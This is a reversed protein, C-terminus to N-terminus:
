KSIESKVPKGTVPDFYIEVKKGDKNTGYIEYCTGSTKFTKIKYGEATLKGKFDAEKQWKDKPQSTCQMSSAMAATSAFSAILTIALLKKMVIEPKSAQLVAPVTDNLCGM